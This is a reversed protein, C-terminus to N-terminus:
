WRGFDFGGGGKARKKPPEPPAEAELAAASRAANDAAGAAPAIYKGIGQRHVTPKAVDTNFWAESDTV